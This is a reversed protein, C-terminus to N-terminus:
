ARDEKENAPEGSGQGNGRVQKDSQRQINESNSHLGNSGQECSQQQSNSSSAYPADSGQEHYQRQSKGSSATRATNRSNMSSFLCVAGLLMMIIGAYVAPLWPDRVLEFVSTESWRGMVSDYSVQYIKWGDIKLPKNVEIVAKSIEGAETYIVVDSAYRQPEREPMIVSTLSDLRMPKAPFAFSGCSVWDEVIKGTESETARIHASSTAGASYYGVYRISNHDHVEIASSDASSLVPASAPLLELVEIDWGLLQGSTVGNELLIHEPAKEPLATGNENEVIMLKPPYEDITFNELEIALPLEKLRGYQDTARWEPSGTRVTMDLRQMDASGLTACVLAVFLSLHNLLFPIRKAKFPICVRLITLGLCITMWLYLLVFPWCSTMRSFGILDALTHESSVPSVQRTLGMIATMAATWILSSVAATTSSLWRLAYAKDRLLHMVALTLLLLCLCILNVPWALINWDIPGVSFQLLLGAIFLGAGITIGEKYGWPKNWM